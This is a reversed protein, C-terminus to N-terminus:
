DPQARNQAEVRFGPRISLIAPCGNDVARQTYRSTLVKVTDFPHGVVLQAGGAVSGATLHALTERFDMEEKLLATKLEIDHV